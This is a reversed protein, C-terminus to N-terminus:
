KSKRYARASMGTTQKFIRSFHNYDAFGTSFAIDTISMDTQCLMRQAHGIRQKRVYEALGCGLYDTSLEYIKTRGIRFATCIADVTINETLHEEIYRDIERIFESKSPVVWRNTMVYATIAQLVTAAASLERQSKVPISDVESALGPHSKKISQRTVEKTEMPIIQGFMVYALVGGKDIIPVVAETLGAHCKYIVLEKRKACKLCGSKDSANCGTEGKVTQRLIHCFNERNQPYALLERFEADFIVIRIKTLTYFDQMVKHLGATNLQLM